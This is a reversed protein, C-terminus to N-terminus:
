RNAGPLMQDLPDVFAYRYPGIGLGYPGGSELLTTGRRDGVIKV